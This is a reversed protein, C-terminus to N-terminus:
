NEILILNTYSKRLFVNCDLEVNYKGQPQSDQPVLASNDQFSTGPHSSVSSQDMYMMMSNDTSHSPGAVPSMPPDLELLEPKIDPPSEPQQNASMSTDSSMSTPVLNSSHDTSSRPRRQMEMSSSMAARSRRNQLDDTTLTQELLKAPEVGFESEDASAPEEIQPDQSVVSTAKQYSNSHSPLSQMPVQSQLNSFQGSTNDMTVDGSLEEIDPSHPQKIKHDNSDDSRNSDSLSRKRVRGRRRKSPPPTETRPVSRHSPEDQASSSSNKENPMEALGKVRLTEATKMLASLQEQAVNVEGHYMFEIIAKLETYKMDKLIVIPHKCPNELFLSQFFPSCASLVMKHAKLSLGDCALTVDVMSETSLLNKFVDMMNNMHNNWKLCFQQSM